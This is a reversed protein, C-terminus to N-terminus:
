CHDHNILFSEQVVRQITCLIPAALRRLYPALKATKVETQELRKLVIHDPLSIVLAGFKIKLM